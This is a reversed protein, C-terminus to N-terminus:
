EYNSKKYMFITSRIKISWAITFPFFYIGESIYYKKKIFLSVRPNLKNAENAKHLYTFNKFHTHTEFTM